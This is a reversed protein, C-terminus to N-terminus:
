SLAVVARSEWREPEDPVDVAWVKRLVAYVASQADCAAEAADMGDLGHEGDLLLWVHRNVALALGEARERDARQLVKM